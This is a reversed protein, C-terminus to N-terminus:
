VLDPRVKRTAEVVLKIDQARKKDAILLANGKKAIILDQVGLLAVLTEPADIVSGQSDISVLEGSSVVSGSREMGWSKALTELSTWSGLDDWGCNLEFTVVNKAKEMVGFDISTATMQPYASAVQQGSATWAAQMEPMASEFARLITKAKWVFM